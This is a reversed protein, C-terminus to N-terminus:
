VYNATIIPRGAGTIIIPISTNQTTSSTVTQTKSGDAFTATNGNITLKVTKAVRIGLLPNKVNLIINTNINIGLYTYENNELRFDILFPSCPIYEWITFSGQSQGYTELTEFYTNSSSSSIIYIRGASDVAVSRASIAEIDHEFWGIDTDFTLTSVRDMTGILLRNGAQDIPLHFRPFQRMQPFTITSHYTLQNDNSGSGVTFTVWTNQRDRGGSWARVNINNPNGRDIFMYTLYTIGAVTFQHPKYFWVNRNSAHNAAVYPVCRQFSKHTKGSPYTITCATETVTNAIADWEFRTFFAEKFEDLPHRDWGGQYFVKRTTSAHRINSPFQYHNIPWGPHYFTKFTNVNGEKNCNYFTIDQTNGNLSCFMATKDNNIGIFFFNQFNRTMNTTVSVGTAPQLRSIGIATGGSAGQSNLALAYFAGPEDPLEYFHAVQEGSLQQYLHSGANMDSARWVTGRAATAGYNDFLYLAVVGNSGRIQLLAPYNEYDLSCIYSDYAGPFGVNDATNSTTYFSHYKGNTFIQALTLNGIGLVASGSRGTNSSDQVVFQDLPRARLTNTDFAVNEIYIRNKSRDPDEQILNWRNNYKSYAIIRAAM